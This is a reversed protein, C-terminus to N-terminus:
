RQKGSQTLALILLNCVKHFSSMQRKLPWEKQTKHENRGNMKVKCHQHERAHKQEIAVFREAPNAFNYPM